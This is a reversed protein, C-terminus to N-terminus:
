LLIVAVMATSDMSAVLHRAGTEDSAAVRVGGSGDAVLNAWGPTLATKVPVYAFGGVQVATYGGAPNYAVGCIPDGADAPAVQADGTLTVVEGETVGDEARFTATVAGIEEFSVQKSM